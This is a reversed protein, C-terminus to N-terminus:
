GYIYITHKIEEEEFAEELRKSVIDYQICFLLPSLSDGQLIGNKIKIDGIPKDYDYYLRIKWNQMLEAISLIIYENVNYKRLCGLMWEHNVSDYAKRIDYYAEM